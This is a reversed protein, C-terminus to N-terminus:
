GGPPLTSILLRSHPPRQHDRVRRMDVLAGRDLHIGVDSVEGLFAFKRVDTVVGSDSAARVDVRSHDGAWICITSGRGRM